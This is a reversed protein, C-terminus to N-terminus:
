ILGLQQRLWLVEEPPDGRYEFEKLVTELRARGTKTRSLERPSRGDLLPNKLDLWKENMQQRMQAIKAQVEPLQMLDQSAPPGIPPQPSFDRTKRRKKKLELGACAKEVLKRLRDARKTSNSSLLFEDEEVRATGISINDILGGPRDESFGITQSDDSHAGPLTMLAAWVEARQTPAFAFRDEIWALPDGDTNALEPAPAQVWADLTQQWMRILGEGKAGLLDEKKLRKKKAEERVKQFTAPPLMTSHMGGTLTVQGLTLLWGLMGAHPQLSQSLGVDWVFLDQDQLVDHLRVGRGAQIEQVEFISLPSEMQCELLRRMDASMKGSQHFQQAMTQGQIPLHHCMWNLAFGLIMEDDPLDLRKLCAEVEVPHRQLLDMLEASLQQDVQIWQRAQVNQWAVTEISSSLKGLCCKKFKSGSGCPCPDNRGIQSMSAETLPLGPVGAESNGGRTSFM